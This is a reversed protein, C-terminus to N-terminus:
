RGNTLRRCGLEFLMYFLFTAIEVCLTLEISETFKKLFVFTIVATIAFSGSKYLVTKKLINM